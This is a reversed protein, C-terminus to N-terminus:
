TSAAPTSSADFGASPAATAVTTAPAAPATVTTTVPAAPQPTAAQAPAPAPATTAPPPNSAVADDDNNSTFGKFGPASIKLCSLADCNRPAEIRIKQGKIELSISGAHASNAAMLLVAAITLKNM